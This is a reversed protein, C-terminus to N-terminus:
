DGTGHCDEGILVRHESRQYSTNGGRLVVVLDDILAITLLLLGAAMATQPIWLPVAVIGYSVEGFALSDSALGVAHWTFFGSLAAGLGLCGIEAWRRSRRPLHQIALTVRIHGGARLTYALALFSAAALFYGTFEAASPISWGLRQGSIWVAIRDAVRTGVQALVTIAIAVLCLAAAAGGALYLSNLLRRAHSQREM